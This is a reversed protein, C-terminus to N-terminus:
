QPSKRSSVHLEIDKHKETVYKVFEKGLGRNTGTIFVRKVVEM